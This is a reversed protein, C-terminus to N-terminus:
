RSKFWFSRKANTFHQENEKAAKFLYLDTGNPHRVNPNNHVFVAYPARAGGFRILIQYFGGRRIRKRFVIRGTRALNGTEKPCLQEARDLVEEGVNYTQDVTHAEQDRAYALLNGEVKKLNKLVVGTISM